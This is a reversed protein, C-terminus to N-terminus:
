CRFYTLNLLCLTNFRLAGAGCPSLYAVPRIKGQLAVRKKTENIKKKKNKILSFFTLGPANFVLLFLNGPGLPHVLIRSSRLPLALFLLSISIPKTM